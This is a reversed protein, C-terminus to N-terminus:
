SGQTARLSGNWPVQPQGPDAWVYRPCIPTSGPFSILRVWHSVKKVIANFGWLHVLMSYPAIDDTTKYHVYLGIPM